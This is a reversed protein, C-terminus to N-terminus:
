LSSKLSRDFEMGGATLIFGGILSEDFSIEIRADAGHFKKCIFSKLRQLQGDDPAEVCVLSARIIGQQKDCYGSYARIIEPLERSRSHDCLYKVFDRTSIPFVADIVRHKEEDDIDPNEMVACLEPNEKVIEATDLIDKKSIELDYLEKAYNDGDDSEGTEELFSDYLSSNLGSNSSQELLKKATEVALDMIHGEAGALAKDVTQRADKNAQSIIRDANERADLVIMDYEDRARKKADDLMNAAEDKVSEMQERHDELLKEAQERSEKAQSLDDNIMKNRKEIVNMIPKFLFIRMLVTLVLLNIVTWIVSAPVIRLMEM